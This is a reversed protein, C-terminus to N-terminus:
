KIHINANIDEIKPLTRLVPEVGDIMKVGMSIKEAM